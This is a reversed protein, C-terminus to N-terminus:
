LFLSLALFPSFVSYYLAINLFIDSLVPSLAAAAAAQFYAVFIQKIQACWFLVFYLVLFNYFTECVSMSVSVCVRRYVRLNHM